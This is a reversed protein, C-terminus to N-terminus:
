GFTLHLPIFGIKRCTGQSLSAEWQNSYPRSPIEISNIEITTNPKNLRDFCFYTRWGGIAGARYPLSYHDSPSIPLLVSVCLPGNGEATSLKMHLYCSGTVEADGAQGRSGSKEIWPRTPRGDKEVAGLERLKHIMYGARQSYLFVADDPSPSWAGSCVVPSFCSAVM